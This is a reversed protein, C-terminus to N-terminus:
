EPYERNYQDFFPKCFFMIRARKKNDTFTYSLYMSEGNWYYNEENSDKDTEPGYSDQFAKLLFQPYDVVITASIFKEKYFSYHISSARAGGILLDDNSRTYLKMGKGIEGAWAWGNWNPNQSECRMDRFSSDSLSPLGRLPIRPISSIKDSVSIIGWVGFLSLAIAVGGSRKQGSRYAIMGCILAIPVFFVAAFYPLLIGGIGLSIAVLGLSSKVVSDLQRNTQDIPTGCGPCSSALDSIERNCEPCNILAM